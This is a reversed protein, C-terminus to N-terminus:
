FMELSNKRLRKLGYELLGPVRPCTKFHSVLANHPGILRNALTSTYIYILKMKLKFLLVSVPNNHRGILTFICKQKGFM